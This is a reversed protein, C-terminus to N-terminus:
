REENCGLIHAIEEADQLAKERERRAAEKLRKGESERMEWLLRLKAEIEDPPPTRTEVEVVWRELDLEQMFGRVKRAYSVALMPVGQAAAFILAHLRMSVLLDAKGVYGAFNRPTPEFNARHMAEPPV